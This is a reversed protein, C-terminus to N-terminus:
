SGSLAKPDPEMTPDTDLVIAAGGAATLKVLADYRKVPLDGVTQMTPLPADYSWGALFAVLTAEQMRYIGDAQEETIGSEALAQAPNPSAIAKAVADGITGAIAMIGRRGRVTVEDRDRIHVWHPTGDSQKEDLDKKQM